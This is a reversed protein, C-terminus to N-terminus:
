STFVLSTDCSSTGRSYSSCHAAIGAWTKMVPVVLTKAVVLDDLIGAFLLSRCRVDRM